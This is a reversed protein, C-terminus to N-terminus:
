NIEIDHNTQRKGDQDTSANVNGAPGRGVKTFASVTVEYVTFKELGNLVTFNLTTNIYQENATTEGAKKYTVNYGLLIGNVQDKPPPTWAVQLSTSSM